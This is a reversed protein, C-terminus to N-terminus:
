IKLQIKSDPSYIRSKELVSNLQRVNGPWHLEKLKKVFDKEFVRKENKKSYYHFILEDIDEKHEELSPLRVQILSIRFYFDDRFVKQKVLQDLDKNSASVLRFKSTMLNTDGIKRYEGLEIARLLKSQSNISINEIEDLFFTNNNAKEILGMTDEEAGTFSGRKHGFLISDAIDTNLLSCNISVADKHSYIGYKHLTKAALEKGTGSEGFLLIPCNEKSLLLLEKRTTEMILSSGVLLEDNNYIQSQVLKKNIHDNLLFSLKDFELPKTYFFVRGSERYDAFKGNMLLVVKSLPFAFIVLKLIEFSFSFEDIIFFDIDSNKELYNIVKDKSSVMICKDAICKNILTRIHGDRSLLLIKL